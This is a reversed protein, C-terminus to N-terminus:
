LSELDRGPDIDIYYSGGHHRSHPDPGKPSSNPMEKSSLYLVPGFPAEVPVLGSNTIGTESGVHLGIIQGFRRDWTVVYGSHQWSGHDNTMELFGLQMLHLTGLDHSPVGKAMHRARILGLSSPTWGQSRDVLNPPLCDSFQVPMHQPCWRFQPLPHMANSSSIGSGKPIEARVPLTSGDLEDLIEVIQGLADPSKSCGHAVLEPYLRSIDDYGGCDGDMTILPKDTFEVWSENSTGTGPSVNQYAHSYNQWIIGLRQEMSRLQTDILDQYDADSLLGSLGAGVIRDETLIHLNQLTILHPLTGDCQKALSELFDFATESRQFKILAQVVLYAGHFIDQDWVETKKLLKDWLRYLFVDSQLATLLYLLHLMDRPEQRITALFKDHVVTAGKLTPGLIGEGTILRLLPRTDYTPDVLLKANLAHYFGELVPGAFYMKPNGSYKWQTFFHTFTPKSLSLAAYYMGLEFMSSRIKLDLRKLRSIVDMVFAAIEMDTTSPPLRRLALWLQKCNDIQLEDAGDSDVVVEGLFSKLSSLDNILSLRGLPLDSAPSRIGKLAPWLSPPPRGLKWEQEFLNLTKSRRHLSEEDISITTSPNSTTVVAHLLDVPTPEPSWERATISSSHRPACHGLACRSGLSISTWRRPRPYATLLGRM